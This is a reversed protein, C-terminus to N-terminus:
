TGSIIACLFLIFLLDMLRFEIGNSHYFTGCEEQNCKQAIGSQLIYNISANQIIFNLVM